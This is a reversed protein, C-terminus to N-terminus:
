GRTLSGSRTWAAAVYLVDDAPDLGRAPLVENYAKFADLFTSGSPGVRQIILDIISYSLGSFSLSEDDM